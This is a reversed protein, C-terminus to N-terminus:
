RLSCNPTASPRPPDAVILQLDRDPAEARLQEFVRKSVAEMDVVSKSLQQRELRSLALLDNILNGMMQTNAVIM